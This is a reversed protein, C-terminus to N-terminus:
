DLVREAYDSCTLSIWSELPVVSYQQDHENSRIAESFDLRVVREREMRASARDAVRKGSRAVVFVCM